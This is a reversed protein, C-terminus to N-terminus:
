PKSSARCALLMDITHGDAALPMIVAESEWIWGDVVRAGRDVQPRRETVTRAYLEVLIERYAPFPFEDLWRGSMEVGLRATVLTGVLRPRFRLPDRHVEILSVYGLAYAFEVPDIDRRAPLERGRRCGDWYGLLRRTVPHELRLGLLDGTDSAMGM